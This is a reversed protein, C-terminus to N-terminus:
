TPMSGSSLSCRIPEPGVMVLPSTMSPLPIRSFRCPNAEDGSISGESLSVVLSGTPPPRCSWYPGHNGICILYNVKLKRLTCLRDRLQKLMSLEISTHICYKVHDHQQQHGAHHSGSYGTGLMEEGRGGGRTRSLRATKIVQMWVM